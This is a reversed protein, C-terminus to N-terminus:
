FLLIRENIGGHLKNFALRKLFSLAILGSIFQERASDRRNPLRYFGEKIPDVLFRLYLISGFHTGVFPQKHM